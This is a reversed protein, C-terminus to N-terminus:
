SLSKVKAILKDCLALLQEIESKTAPGNVAIEGILEAKLDSFIKKMEGLAAEVWGYSSILLVFKLPPKLLKALYAASIGLPHMSNLVTPVGFILARSDVLDAAIDGLDSNIINYRVVKVGQTIIRETLIDVMYEIDKWMSTYLIIVKETTVGATWKEYLAMVKKVNKYVPGHSPAILKIELDKIKDIARKGMIAFPMMIEGYYRKLQFELDEYDNEDLSKASHFGFFDCPFLAGEEKLYTFITEPWHLMPAEIFKVTKNGLCLEEGDKVALIRDSSVGHFRKAMKFGKQSTILKAKSNLGLFYSITGAHDPEAHNMVIYDIEEPKIVSSIRAIWEQEFGKQVSDILLYKDSKILYSNYSTGHPLPILADFIRRNYDKVGVYYVDDLLEIASCM